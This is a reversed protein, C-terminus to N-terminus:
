WSADSHVTLHSRILWSKADQPGIRWLGDEAPMWSFGQSGGAPMVLIDVRQIAGAGRPPNRYVRVIFESAVFEGRGRNLPRKRWEKRLSWWLIACLDCTPRNQGGDGALKLDQADKLLLFGDDEIDCVSFSQCNNCRRQM